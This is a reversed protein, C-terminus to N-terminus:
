EGRKYDLFVYKYIKGNFLFHILFTFIFAFMIFLYIVNGFELVTNGLILLVGTGLLVIDSIFAVPKTFFTISAPKYDKARFNYKGNKMNKWLIVYAGTGILLGLWFMIGALVGLVDHWKDSGTSFPILFVTASSIFYGIVSISYWKTIINKNM